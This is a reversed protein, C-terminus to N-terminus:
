LRPDVPESELALVAFVCEHVRRLPERAVFRDLGELGLALERFALSRKAGLQRQRLRELHEPADYDPGYIIRLYERGRCKIAPQTTGRRGAALFEAPKVVMGEGGRGTLDLWWGVAAEVSAPDDLDVPLSETRKFLPDAAALGELEALHWAHAKDAHVAGESALLHFPAIALGDIGTVPWAYRRVVASFAEARRRRDEIRQLLPGTPLGRREGAALADATAGLGLRAAAGTPGFQTAILQQAKASWPMIEADLLVWETALRDFTGLRDLADRVRALVADRDEARDFFARGTRTYVAGIEGSGVGFRRQAADGDRCVVLLARSGM